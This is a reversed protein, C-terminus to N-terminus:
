PTRSAHPQRQGKLHQGVANDFSTAKRTFDFKNFRKLRIQGTWDRKFFNNAEGGGWILL